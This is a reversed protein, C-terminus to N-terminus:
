QQLLKSNRVKLADVCRWMTQIENTINHISILSKEYIIKWSIQWILIPLISFAAEERENPSSYYSSTTTKTSSSSFAHWVNDVHRRRWNVVEHKLRLPALCGCFIARSLLWAVSSSKRRWNLRCFHRRLNSEPWCFILRWPSLLVDKIRNFSEFYKVVVCFSALSAFGM